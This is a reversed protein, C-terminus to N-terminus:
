NAPSATYVVGPDSTMYDTSAMSYAYMAKMLTLQQELTDAEADLSVENETGVAANAAARATAAEQTLYMIYAAMNYTAHATQIVGNKDEYQVTINMDNRMFYARINENTDVYLGSGTANNYTPDSKDTPDFRLWYNLDYKYNSFGHMSYDIRIVKNNSDLPAIAFFPVHSWAMYYKAGEVINALQATDNKADDEIIKVFEESSIDHCLGAYEGTKWIASYGDFYKGSSTKRAEDLYHAINVALAKTKQDYEGDLLENLYGPISFSEVTHEIREGDQFIFVLTHKMAYGVNEASIYDILTTYNYKLYKEDVGNADLKLRTGLEMDDEGSVYKVTVTQEIGDEDFYSTPIYLNCLMKAALDINFLLGDDKIIKKEMKATITYTGATLTTFDTVPTEGNYWVVALDFILNNVTVDNEVVPIDPVTGAVSSTAAIETGDKGIWTIHVGPTVAVVYLENENEGPVTTYELVTDALAFTAGEELIVKYACYVNNAVFNNGAKVTLINNPKIMVTAADEFYYDATIGEAYETDNIKGTYTVSAIADTSDGMKHNAGGVHSGFANFFDIATSNPVNAGINEFLTDLSGTYAKDYYTLSGNDFGVSYYDSALQNSGSIFMRYANVNNGPDTSFLNVSNLYEGNIFGYLKSNVLNINDVAIVMTYHNWEGIENSIYIRKAENSKYYVYWQNRTEDYNFKLDTAGSNASGTLNEFTINGIYFGKDYALRKVIETNEEGETKVYPIWGDAKKPEGAEDKNLTAAYYKTSISGDTNTVTYSDNTIFTHKKGKMAYADSMFDINLIIYKQDKLKGTSTRDFYIDLRNDNGPNEKTKPEALEITSLDTPDYWFRFYQNGGDTVGEGVTNTKSSILIQYFFNSVDAPAAGKNGSERNIYYESTYNFATSVITTGHTDDETLQDGDGVFVLYDGNLKEITYTSGSAFKVVSLDDHILFFPVSPSYNCINRGSALTLIDGKELVDLADVVRTYHTIEAIGADDIKTVSAAYEASPAVFHYKSNYVLDNCDGLTAPATDGAFHDAVEGVYGDKYYHAVMNDLAFSSASKKQERSPPSFRMDNPGCEINAALNDGTILSLESDSFVKMTSLLVGNVYMHLKSGSLTTATIKKESINEATLDSYDLYSGGTVTITEVTAESNEDTAPTTVKYTYDIKNDLEYVITIHNWEGPKQSLPLTKNNFSICWLDNVKTFSVTASHQESNKRWRYLSFGSKGYSLDYTKDPDLVSSPDVLTTGYTGDPLLEDSSTVLKDASLDFDVVLFDNKLYTYEGGESALGLSLYPGWISDTVPNAAFDYYDDPDETTTNSIKNYPDHWIRAYSNTGSKDNDLIGLQRNAFISGLIKTNFKGKASEVNWPHYIESGTFTEAGYGSSGFRYTVGTEYNVYDLDPDSAAPTSLDLAFVTAVLTGFLMVATIIVALIKATRKM